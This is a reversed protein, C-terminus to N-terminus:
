ILLKALVYLILTMLMSFLLLRVMVKKSYTNAFDVRGDQTISYHDINKKLLKKDCLVDLEEKAEKEPLNSLSLIEDITFDERNADFLTKMFKYHEM